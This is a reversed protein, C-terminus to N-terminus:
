QGLCKDILREYKRFININLLQGLKNWRFNMVNSNLFDKLLDSKGFQCM